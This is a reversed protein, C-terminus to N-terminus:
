SISRFRIRLQCSQSFFYRFECSRKRGNTKCLLFYPFLNCEIFSFISFTFYFFLFFFFLFSPVLRSILNNFIFYFQDTYRRNKYKISYLLLSLQFSISNFQILNYKISKQNYKFVFLKIGTIVM